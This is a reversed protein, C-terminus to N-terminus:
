SLTSAGGFAIRDLIIEDMNAMTAPVVTFEGYRDNVEDAARALIEFIEPNHAMGAARRM